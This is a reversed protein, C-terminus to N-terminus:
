IFLCSAYSMTGKGHNYTVGATHCCDAVVLGAAEMATYRIDEHRCPEDPYTCDPCLSCKGAGLLLAEPYEKKLMVSLKNTRKSHTDNLGFMTEFDFEDELEGWTQFVYCTTKTDIIKQFDEIEGCAPPCAWTNNYQGCTNVKCMDRVEPRVRMETAAAQGVEEFGCEKIMEVIDRAM